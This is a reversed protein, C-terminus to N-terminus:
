EKLLERKLFEKLDKTIGKIKDIKDALEKKWNSKEQSFLNLLQSIIIKIMPNDSVVIHKEKGIDTEVKFANRELIAMIEEKIKIEKKM